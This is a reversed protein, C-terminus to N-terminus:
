HGEAGVGASVERARKRDGARGRAAERAKDIRKHFPLIVHAQDAIVLRQPGAGELLGRATLMEMEQLLVEPDVM